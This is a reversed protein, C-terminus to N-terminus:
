VRLQGSHRRILWLHSQQLPSSLGHGCYHNKKLSRQCGRSHRTSTKEDDEV